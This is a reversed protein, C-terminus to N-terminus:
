SNLTVTLVFTITHKHRVTSIHTMRYGKSCKKSEHESNVTHTNLECLAKMLLSRKIHVYVYYTHIRLFYEHRPLIPCFQQFKIISNHEHVPKLYIGCLRYKFKQILLKSLTTSNNSVDFTSIFM